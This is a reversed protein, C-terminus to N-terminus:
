SKVAKDYSERIEKAGEWMGFVLWHRYISQLCDYESLSLEAGAPMSAKASFRHGLVLDGHRYADKALRAWEAKEHQSPKMNM